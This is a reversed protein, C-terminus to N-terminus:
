SLIGKIEAKARNIEVILENMIRQLEDICEAPDRKVLAPVLMKGFGAQVTTSTPSLLRDVMCTCLHKTAETLNKGSVKKAM